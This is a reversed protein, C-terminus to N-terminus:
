PEPDCGDVGSGFSGLDASCREVLDADGDGDTDFLEAAKGGAYVMVFEATGCEGPECAALPLVLMLPLLRFSM